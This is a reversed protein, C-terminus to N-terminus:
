KETETSFYPKFEMYLWGFFVLLILISSALSVKEGIEYTKPKFEFVIDSEGAPVKMARLLYDARIHEAPEGNLTVTWGKNPGYWIESFVVFREKDTNCKYVLRNPEYSTMAITAMSLSDRKPPEFGNMYSDFTTHVVATTRTNLDNLAGIEDTATSVYKISDVFWANGLAGPNPQAKGDRDIIYKTNFMNLVDMNIERAFSSDILDQIRQLKVASYGGVTNHHYSTMSSNFTNVSLDLVRYYGRGQPENQMIAMDVPRPATNQKYKTKSVFDDPGLYNRDVMFMDGVILVGLVIIVVNMKLKRTVFLFLSGAALLILFFTRMGSAHLMSVRDANLGDLFEEYMAQNGQFQSEYQGDYFHTVELFTPAFLTYLLTIGLSIGAAIFLKEKKQKESIKSTLFYSLGALGVIPFLASVVGMASNHARFNSYKPFYEFFIRNFSEFYKGLSLLAVLVFAGFIAYKFGGRPLTLMGLFFLFFVIAGYYTPGDTSDGGGWYTPIRVPRAKSPKGFFKTLESDERMIEQSSGGVAGPIFTGFFDRPANSWRMAYDWDLGENKIEPNRAQAEKKLESTGRMTDKSYELTTYIKSFSPGIALIGCVVMIITSYIYNDITKQYIAFGFYIIMFLVMGIVFYYTMQYHNASINLSLGLLFCVAGKLYQKKNLLLYVGAIVLPIYSIARFKSTHGAHYLLVNNTTLSFALGGIIALWHEVGMVLMLIYFCLAAVFFWAIPAQMYLQMIREVYIRILNSNQPSSIQYTPMGGFMANTWLTVDGTRKYYDNAEHAMGMGQVIDGQELVKGGIQPHFYLALVVLFIAIATIHKILPKM